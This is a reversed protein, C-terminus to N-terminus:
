GSQQNSNQGVPASNIRQTTQVMVKICDNANRLLTMNDANRPDQLKAVTELLIQQKEQYRDVLSPEQQQRTVAPPSTNRKQPKEMFPADNTAESAKRKKSKTAPGSAPPSGSANSKPQHGPDNHVRKMHDRLNWHRPFGNGPVGRECGEYTCLFPKDGHGHMAHAEREHRLLCATSSFCLEKCTNVKCKYPKLHSDVFKSACMSHNAIFVRSYPFVPDYEYNCKLKEPKHTCNAKPDDEFPCHYLGDAKPTVNHYLPHERATNDLDLSSRGVLKFSEDSTESSGPVRPRRSAAALDSTVKSQRPGLKRTVRDGTTTYPPQEVLDAFDQVYRPSVGELSPSYEMPSNTTSTTMQPPPLAWPDELLTPSSRQSDLFHAASDWLDNPNMVASPHFSLSERSVPVQSPLSNSGTTLSFMEDESHGFPNYSPGSAMPVHAPAVDAMLDRQFMPHVGSLDEGNHYSYSDFEQLDQHTPTYLDVPSNSRNSGDSRVSPAHLSMQSGHPYMSLSRIHDFTSYVSYSTGQSHAGISDTSLQRSMETSSLETNWPVRSSGSFSDRGHNQSPRAEQSAHFNLSETFGKHANEHPSLPDQFNQEGESWFPGSTQSQTPGAQPLSFPTMGRASGNPLNFPSCLSLNTHQAVLTVVSWSDGDHATSVLPSCFELYQPTVVTPTTQHAMCPKGVVDRDM